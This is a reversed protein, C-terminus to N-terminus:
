QNIPLGILKQADESTINAYDTSTEDVDTQSLAVIKGNEAVVAIAMGDITIFCGTANEYLYQGEALGLAPIETFHEIREQIAALGEYQTITYAFNIYGFTQNNDDYYTVYGFLRESNYNYALARVYDGTVETFDIIVDFITHNTIAKVLGALLRCDYLGVGMIKIYDQQAVQPM